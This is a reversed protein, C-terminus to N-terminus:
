LGHTSGAGELPLHQCFWAPLHVMPRLLSAASMQVVDSAYIFLNQGDKSGIQDGSIFLVVYQSSKDEKLLRMQMKCVNVSTDMM